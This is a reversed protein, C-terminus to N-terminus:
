VQRLFVLTVAYLLKINQQCFIPHWAQLQQKGTLERLQLFGVETYALEIESMVPIKRESLKKFIDSKPPIGPSTIAVYSDNIFEDSHGGFEVKIGEKRVEEVKQSDLDSKIETIYCDAGKSNLYKAASIGSRSFGLILVKKDFWYKKM